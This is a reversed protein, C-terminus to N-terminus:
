MLRDRDLHQLLDGCRAASTASGVSPPWVASFMAMAARGPCGRWYSTSIIPAVDLHDALGLVPVEEPLGALTPAFTSGLPMTPVISRRSTALCIPM